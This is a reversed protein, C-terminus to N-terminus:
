WGVHFGLVVNIQNQQGVAGALVQEIHHAGQFLAAWVQANDNPEAM